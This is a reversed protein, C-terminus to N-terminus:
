HSAYYLEICQLSEFLTIYVFTRQKIYRYFFFILILLLFITFGSSFFSTQLEFVLGVVFCWSKICVWYLSRNCCNIMFLGYGM